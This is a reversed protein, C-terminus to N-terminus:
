RMPSVESSRIRSSTSVRLGEARTTSETWVTYEDLNGDAGPLM